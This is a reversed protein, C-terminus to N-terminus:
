DYNGFKINCLRQDSPGVLYDQKRFLRPDLSVRYSSRRQKDELTRIVKRIRKDGESYGAIVIIFMSDHHGNTLSKNNM